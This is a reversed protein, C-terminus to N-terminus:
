ICRTKEYRPLVFREMRKPIVFKEVEARSMQETDGDQYRVNGYLKNDNVGRGTEDDGGTALSVSEIVGLYKKKGFPKEVFRGVYNKNVSQDKKQSALTIETVTNDIGAYNQRSYDRGKEFGNAFVFYDYSQKYRRKLDPFYDLTENITITGEAERLKRQTTNAREDDTLDAAYEVIYTKAPPKYVNTIIKKGEFHGMDGTFIARDTFRKGVLLKRWFELPRALKAREEAKTKKMKKDIRDLELRTQRVVVLRAYQSTTARSAQQRVIDGEGTERM